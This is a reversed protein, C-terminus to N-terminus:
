RFTRAPEIWSPPLARLDAETRKSKGQAKAVTARYQAATMRETM